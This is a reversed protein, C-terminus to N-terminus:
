ELLTLFSRVKALQDANLTSLIRRIDGFAAPDAQGEDFFAQPTIGFYDCIDFFADMSPLAKGSTIKQIYSQNKGLDLSMTYESVGKSLRLATIRRQVFAHFAAREM